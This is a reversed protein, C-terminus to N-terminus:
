GMDYIDRPKMHCICSWGQDVLNDVYFIMRADIALIFPEDVVNGNTHILYSFNVSTIGFKDIKIRKNPKTGVWIWKFLMVRLKSIYDLEIIDVLKEYYM